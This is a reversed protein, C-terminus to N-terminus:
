VHVLFLLEVDVNKSHTGEDGTSCSCGVVVDM